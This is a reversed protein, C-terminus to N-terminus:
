SPNIVQPRIELSTSECFHFFVLDNVKMGKKTVPIIFHFLSRKRKCISKREFERVLNVYNEVLEQLHDFIAACKGPRVSLSILFWQFVLILFLNFCSPKSGNVCLFSVSFVSLSFSCNNENLVCSAIIGFKSKSVFSIIGIEDWINDESPELLRTHLPMPYSIHIPWNSLLLLADNEKSYQEEIFSDRDIM